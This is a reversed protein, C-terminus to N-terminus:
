GAQRTDTDFSGSPIPASDKIWGGMNTRLRLREKLGALENHTAVIENRAESLAAITAAAKSVSESVATASVRLTQRAEVMETMLQSAESIAKDIAAETAFLRNQVGQAVFARDM